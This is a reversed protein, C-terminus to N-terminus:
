AHGNAGENPQRRRLLPTAAVMGLLGFAAGWALSRNREPDQAYTYNFTTLYRKGDAEKEAFLVFRARSRPDNSEEDTGSAPKFDRPFVVTAHGTADSVASSRSGLETEMGVTQGALPQGNLRVLFRWKEAERYSRHERPLPAPVIELEHKPVALMDKPSDGPEGFYWATTAVRVADGSEERAVVWHYNGTKPAVAEIRAGDAGVPYDLKRREAPGDSAYVAVSTAVLGRPTLMATTRSGREVKGLLLPQGTWERAPPRGAPRVPPASAVGAVPATGHDHQALTPTALGLSTLSLVLLIAKM